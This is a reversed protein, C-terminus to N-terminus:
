FGSFFSSLKLKLDDRDKDTMSNVDNGQREWVRELVYNKNQTSLESLNNIKESELTNKIVKNAAIFVDLEEQNEFTLNKLKYESLTWNGKDDKYFSCYGEDCLYKAIFSKNDKNYLNNLDSNFFYYIEYKEYDKSNIEDVSNFASQKLDKENTFGEKVEIKRTGYIKHDKSDGINNSAKNPSSCGIMFISLTAILTNRLIKLNIM